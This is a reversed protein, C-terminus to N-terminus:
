CINQFISLLPFVYQSVCCLLGCHLALSYGAAEDWLFKSESIAAFPALTTLMPCFVQIITQVNYFVTLSGAQRCSQASPFWWDGMDVSFFFFFFLSLSLLM